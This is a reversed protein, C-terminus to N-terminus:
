AKDVCVYGIVSLGIVSLSMDWYECFELRGLHMCAMCTWLHLCTDIDMSDFTPIVM